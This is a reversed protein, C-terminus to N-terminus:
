SEAKRQLDEVDRVMVIYQIDDDGEVVHNWRCEPLLQLDPEGGAANVSAVAMVLQEALDRMTTAVQAAEVMAEAETRTVESM